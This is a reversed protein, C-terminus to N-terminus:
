FKVCHGTNVMFATCNLNEKHRRKPPRKEKETRKKFSLTQGKCHDMNPKMDPCSTRAAVVTRECSLWKNGCRLMKGRWFRLACQSRTRRWGGPTVHVNPQLTTRRGGRGTNITRHSVSSQLVFYYFWHQPFMGLGLCVGKNWPKSSVRENIKSTYCLSVVIKM